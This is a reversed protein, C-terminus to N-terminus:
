SLMVTIFLGIYLHIIRTACINQSCFLSLSDWWLVFCRHLIWFIHIYTTYIVSNCNPLHWAWQEFDTDGKLFASRTTSLIDCFKWWKMEYAAWSSCKTYASLLACKKLRNTTGKYLIDKKRKFMNKNKKAKHDSISRMVFAHWFMYKSFFLTMSQKWKPSVM